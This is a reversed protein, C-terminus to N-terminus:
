DNNPRIRPKLFATALIVPLALHLPFMYRFECYYPAAILMTGWLGIYAVLPIIMDYQRHSWRVLAILVTAWLAFGMNFLLSVPSSSRLDTFQTTPNGNFVELGTTDYLLNTGGKSVVWDHTEMNWYGQTARMWAQLYTVPNQMGVELWLGMFESQHTNLWENDFSEHYKVPNSSYPSYFEKMADPDVLNSITELQEDTVDGGYAVTASLQQIPIGVSERFPSPEIGLSSYFPGTIVYALAIAAFVSLVGKIYHRWVIAMCLAALAMAYIGNNRLLCILLVTVGLKLCTKLSKLAEGKSLAIDFLQLCALLMCLAFPIDKWMTTAYKAIVPNLAFFALVALVAVDPIGRRKLWLCAYACVAAVTTMQVFSFLFVGVTMNGIASGLQVFPIILATYFMPHANSWPEEGLAIRISAYSDTSLTGPFNMALTIGYSVMLAIFCLTWYKKSASVERSEIQFRAILSAIIGLIVFIVVALGWLIWFCEAKTTGDMWYVAVYTASLVVSLLITLALSGKRPFALKAIDSIYKQSAGDLAEKNLRM